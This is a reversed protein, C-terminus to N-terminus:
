CKKKRRGFLFDQKVRSFCFTFLFFFCFFLGIANQTHIHTHLNQSRTSHGLLPLPRKPPGADSKKQRPGDPRDKQAAKQGHLNSQPRTSLPGKCRCRGRWAAAGVGWNTSARFHPRIRSPGRERKKGVPRFAATPVTKKWKKRKCNGQQRTKTTMPQNTKAGKKKRRRRAPALARSKKDWRLLCLGRLRTLVSVSPLVVTRGPLWLFFVPAVAPTTKVVCYTHTHTHTRRRWRAEVSRASGM